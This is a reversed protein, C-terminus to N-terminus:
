TLDKTFLEELKDFPILDTKDYLDVHGAGPVVYLEKPEAALEDADESFVALSRARRHRVPHTEDLDFIYNDALPM